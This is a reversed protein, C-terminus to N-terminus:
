PLFVTPILKLAAGTGSIALEILGDKSYLSDLPPIVLFKGAAITYANSSSRGNNDVGSAITVVNANTGDDNFIVLSMNSNYPITNGNTEDLAIGDLGTKGMNKTCFYPAIQASTIETLAM